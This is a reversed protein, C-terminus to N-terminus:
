RSTVLADQAIIADLLNRIPSVEQNALDIWKQYAGKNKVEMATIQAYIVDALETLHQIQSSDRSAIQSLTAASAQFANFREARLGEEYEALSIRGQELLSYYSEAKNQYNKEKRAMEANLLGVENQTRLDSIKSRVEDAAALYAMTSGTSSRISNLTRQAQALESAVSKDGARQYLAREEDTLGEQGSIGTDVASSLTAMRDRYDSGSLEDLREYGAQTDDSTIGGTVDTQADKMKTLADMYDASPSGSLTSLKSTISANQAELDSTDDYAQILKGTASDYIGPARGKSDGPLVTEYRLEGSRNQMAQKLEAIVADVQEADSFDIDGITLSEPNAKIITILEATTKKPQGNPLTQPKAVTTPSPTTTFGDPAGSADAEQSANRRARARERATRSDHVINAEDFVFPTYPGYAEDPLSSNVALSSGVLSRFPDDEFEQTSEGFAEPRKKLM